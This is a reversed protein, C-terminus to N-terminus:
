PRLERAVYTYSLLTSSSLYTSSIIMIIIINYQVRVLCVIALMILVLARRSM